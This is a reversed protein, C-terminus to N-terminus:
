VCRNKKQRLPVCCTSPKNKGSITCKAEKPVLRGLLGHAEQNIGAAFFLDDSRVRERDCERDCHVLALGWLGVITVFAGTIDRLQRVFKGSDLDFILIRGSGFNGVVLCDGIPLLAWPSNLFGQSAFRRLLNGCFDFEDIFGREPAAVDDHREANQLAFSVLLRKKHVVAVNFPAFGTPLLTPDTFKSVLTFTQNYVEVFGSNFNAAFLLGACPSLDVGKYVAGSGSNDVVVPALTPSVTPNAANITGNETVIVFTAPASTGSFNAIFINPNPNFALGTPNSPPTQGTGVAVTIPTPGPVGNLSYNTLLGTANDNVWIRDCVIQIGWPNVLNPDTIPALGPLDSVLPVLQHVRTQKKKPIETAESM